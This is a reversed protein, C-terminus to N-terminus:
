RRVAKLTKRIQDLHFRDHGAILRFVLEYSEAGREAHMGLRQRETPPTRHWLGLNAQRVAAFLSLLEEPDAQNYRLRSAWLDQDYPLLEPRDHALMWRYRAAAVIESDSLHGALELVSWENEAPRTRLAAGADSVARRLEGPTRSQVAAPDDDGLLSLILQQYAAPEAVPDVTM